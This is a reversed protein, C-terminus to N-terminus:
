SLVKFFHESLNLIRINPKDDEFQHPDLDKKKLKISIRIRLVPPDGSTQNAKTTSLSKNQTFSFVAQWAFPKQM